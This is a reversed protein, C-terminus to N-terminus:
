STDVFLPGFANRTAVAVSVAAFCKVVRSVRLFDEAIM